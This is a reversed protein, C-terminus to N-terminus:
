GRILGACKEVLKTWRGGASSGLEKKFEEDGISLKIAVLGALVHIDFYRLNDRSFFVDGEAHSALKDLAERLRAWAEEREKGRLDAEELTKGPPAYKEFGKRARESQKQSMRYMILPFVLPNINQDFYSDSLAQFARTDPPFLARQRDTTSYTKELYDIIKRSDTLRVPADPNTRDVLAPLTYRPSGDARKELPPIGAAICTKEIDPGESWVTEYPLNKYNLALRVRLTNPSTSLGPINSKIDYFVLNPKAM